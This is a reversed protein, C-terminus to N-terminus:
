SRALLGRYVGIVRVAVRELAFEARVAAGDVRGPGLLVDELGKAIAAPDRAVLRCGPTRDLWQKVDGTNVSVVPVDTSLAEKVVM